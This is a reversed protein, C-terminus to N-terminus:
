GRVGRGARQEPETMTQRLVDLAAQAARERIEERAGPFGRCVAREVEGLRAALWVTGVPKDPTGGTPGAIGTVGISAMSGFRRQAGRALARAVPESVAGHQEILDRPVELDRVKSENSYCVVGGLFVDSAGPVATLRGSLLGGTCSEAVALTGRRERLGHLVLAALDVGDDGYYHRGLRPRLRDAATGLLERAERLPRDWATLRLDVGELTPLYALTVAALENEIGDLETALASEAIGTTRLTLSVVSTAAQGAAAARGALRPIVEADVLGRMEHPVGPLLVAVGLPGELWLGPATGRPNPLVTAGRPVEAQTRNSRPLPGRGMDAFRQKLRDLYAADLELPVDFLDAVAHKTADDKTPGLGGTVIVTGTRNLADEVASRIRAPDDPVSTKRVVRGGVSALAGAVYAANTDVTLGLILETGVTVIELEM